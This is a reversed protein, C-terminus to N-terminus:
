GSTVSSGAAAGPSAARGLPRNRVFDLPRGTNIPAMAAVNATTTPRITHDTFAVYRGCAAGGAIVLIATSGSASKDPAAIGDDNTSPRVSSSIPVSPCTLASRTVDRVDTM